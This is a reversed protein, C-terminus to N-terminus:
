PVAQTSPPDLIPHTSLFCVLNSLIQFNSSLTHGTPIDQGEDYRRWSNPLATQQSRKKPSHNGSHSYDISKSVQPNTATIIINPTGQAGTAIPTIDNSGAYSEGQLHPTGNVWKWRCSASILVVQPIEMPSKYGDRRM